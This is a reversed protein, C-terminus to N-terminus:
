DEQDERIRKIIREQWKNISKEEEPTLRGEQFRKQWPEGAEAVELAKVMEPLPPIRVLRIVHVLAKVDASLDAIDEELRLKSKIDVTLENERLKAEMILSYMKLLKELSEKTSRAEDM